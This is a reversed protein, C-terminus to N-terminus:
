AQLARFALSAAECWNGCADRWQLLARLGQAEALELGAQPGLVMLATAWADAYMCEAHIVTVSALGHAVPAGSRPDLTHQILREDLLYRRRYDGSTAVALGHLAIRTPQLPCGAAPSELAVWWPQADPKLGSGRLEGGVEVLHHVLGQRALWAAVADVAFGKAIASLNLAVGGPQHLRGGEDLELAQWGHGSAPQAHVPPEFGVDSYRRAAGFGWADIAPALAPDFAGASLRAVALAARMVQAFEPPLALWQGPALAAFRRLPSSARFHSLQAELSELLEAIGSQLTRPEIRETMVVRVSWTTGMCAGALMYVEGEPLDAAQEIRPPLLLRFAPANM